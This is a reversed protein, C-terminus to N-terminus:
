ATKLEKLSAFATSFTLVIQIDQSFSQAHVCWAFLGKNCLLSQKSSLGNGYYITLGLVLRCDYFYTFTEIPLRCM